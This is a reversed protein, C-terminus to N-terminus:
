RKNENKKKPKRITRAKYRCSDCYVTDWEKEHYPSIYRRAGRRDFVVINKEIILGEIANEDNCFYPCRLKLLVDVKTIKSTNCCTSALLKFRRKVNKYPTIFIGVGDGYDIEYKYTQLNSAM